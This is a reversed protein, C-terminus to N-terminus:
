RWRKVTWKWVLIM